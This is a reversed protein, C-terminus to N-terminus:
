GRARPRVIDAGWLEHLYKFQWKEPPERCEIQDQCDSAALDLVKPLLPEASKTSFFVKVRPKTLAHRNQELVVALRGSRLRVLSGTPYIGVCKVFAQFLAPDFQGAWSSMQALAVAPDWGAKYPRDSTLADYVDCIAGMRALLSIQEAALQHPYGKGDVREHHHLCVDRVKEDVTECAVLLEHGRVPHQKIIEFETATLKGPKNLVEQPMLAKGMDHLMGALGAVRCEEDTLELQRGLAVMLACVAVSHMYTYEDATKLRVLTCLAEHNRSISAMVDDVLPACCEPDIARALRIDDFMARTTEAGRARLQAARQWEEALPVPESQPPPSEDRMVPAPSAAPVSVPVDRGQEIDIWCEKVGCGQLSQLTASDKILFRGRWFPHDLWAADLAQVFMGVTLQRVQIKKLVSPGLASDSFDLELASRAARVRDCM